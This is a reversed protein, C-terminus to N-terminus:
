CPSLSAPRSQVLLLLFQFHLQQDDIVVIREGVIEDLKEALHVLDIKHHLSVVFDRDVLDLFEFGVSDHNRRPRPTRFIRSDTTFQNAFEPGANWDEPNAETMLADSLNKAAFYHASLFEHVAFSRLNAM